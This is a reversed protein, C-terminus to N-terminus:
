NGYEVVFAAFFGLPLCLRLWPSRGLLGLIAKAGLGFLMTLALITIVHYRVTFRFMPAIKFFFLAPGPTLQLSEPLFTMHRFPMPGLACLVSAMFLLSFFIYLLREGRKMR